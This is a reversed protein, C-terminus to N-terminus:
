SMSLFRSLFFQNLRTSKLPTKFAIAIMSLLFYIQFFVPWYTLCTFFFFLSRVIYFCFNLRICSHFIIRTISCVSALVEMKNPRKMIFLVYCYSNIFSPMKILLFSGDRPLTTAVCSFMPIIYMWHYKRQKVSCYIHLWLYQKCHFAKGDSEPLRRANRVISHNGGLSKYRNDHVILEIPISTYILNLSVNLTKGFSIIM